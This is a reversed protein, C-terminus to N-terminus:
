KIAPTDPARNATKPWSIVTVSADIEDGLNETFIIRPHSATSGIAKYTQATRAKGNGNKFFSGPIIAPAKTKDIRFRTLITLRNKIPTYEGLTNARVCM